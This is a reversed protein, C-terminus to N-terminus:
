PRAAEETVWELFGATIRRNRARPTVFAQFGGPVDVFGVPAVLRGTDIDSQVIRREALAVGLGAAAAELALFHHAHEIDREVILETNARQMWAAWTHQANPQTLRVSARCSNEAIVLPYDPACVPGYATDGISLSQEHSTENRLRDYSLCVDFESEPLEQAYSMLLRVEVNPFRAYFRPLRPTLWRTALTASALIDVRYENLEARLLQSLGNLDDLVSSAVARLREGRATLRLGNGEREFLEGGLDESLHRIQKSVAGHTRGLEHAAATVSGLRATAEFAPLASLPPLKRM